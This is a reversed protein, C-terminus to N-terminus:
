KPSPITEIKGDSHIVTSTGNGNPVIISQGGGPNVTTQYGPGGGTTVAPGSPTQIIQGGPGRAPPAAPPSAYGRLPPATSPTALGSQNSGPSVSSGVSPNPSPSPATGRSIPSGPVAMEPQSALGGQGVLDKLTPAPPLPGPWIDGPETTLQPVEPAEGQVRRMNESDGAPKNPNYGGSFSPNWWTKYGCGSLTLLLGFWIIRRMLFPEGPPISSSHLIAAFRAPRNGAADPIVAM